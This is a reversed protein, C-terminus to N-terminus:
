QLYAPLTFQFTMGPGANPSAWIRGGHAEVISRCMSLGIGMGDVKTTYFPSFLRKMNDPEIGVGADQVAVLVQQAAHPESRIAMVRPRDVLAAMAHVGNVVLNILVQQLQIRDGRVPPLDPALDLRLAIRHIFLERHVFTVAEEIVHNADIRAMEPEAKRALSRIRGIVRAARDADAVMQTVARRVEDTGEEGRGLWRLGAAGSTVIAALPQNIEHAISASMEGLTTLRTAHALQAHADHLAQQAERATTVDMLAGVIEEEGSGYKLRRARVHVQRVAGDPMLLRHEFDFGTGGHLVREAQQRVLDRDDPHSRGIILELTPTVSEDYGFIRYTEKSWILTSDSARWGFSGTHSLRQAEDSYAESRQLAAIARRQDEIDYGAGYWRIVEGKDNRLPVRRVSLWRYEGDARRLRYETDFPEGAQFGARWESALRARDDPHIAGAWAKVATERPRGTFDCSTKNVFEVTGDAAFRRVLVPITDIMLELERKAEALETESQQLAAEARKRDEIDYAAGYWRVVEGREDRLPVRSAAHWHYVGDARRLRYEIRFPTASALHASSTSELRARDDPHVVSAWREGSVEDASLGTFTRGTENVFDIGGDPGHRGVLVPITDVIRRLEREAEALHAESRQLDAMAQKEDHIDYGAGYWRIVKGAEDHLPVRIILYWRYAGDARRMRQEIQFPQGSALHARWAAGVKPLDDPHIAAGWRLHKQDLSLGTYDRWTKNVFDLAGDARYSAAMVPITDIVLQLERQARRSEVEANRRSESTRRQAESLLVVFLAAVGFIALRPVDQLPLAFSHRPAIFFYDFALITLVTALLGPGLGGLWASLLIVCLFLSLSPTVDLRELLLSLALAAGVSLIAIGFGLPAPPKSRFLRSSGPM